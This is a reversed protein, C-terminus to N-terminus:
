VNRVLEFAEQGFRPGTIHVSIEGSRNEAFVGGDGYRGVYNVGDAPPIEVCLGNAAGDCVARVVDGQSLGQLDSM